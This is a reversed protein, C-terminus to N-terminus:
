FGDKAMVDDVYNPDGRFKKDLGVQDYHATRDAASIVQWEATGKTGSADVTVVLLGNNDVRVRYEHLGGAYGNFGRITDRQLQEDTFDPLTVTLPKLATAPSAAGSGHAGTKSQALRQDNYTKVLTKFSGERVHTPYARAVSQKSQYFQWGAKVNEKWSWVQDDTPAPNTIQCIGVGGLNDASFLPCGPSRFQQLGSELRMLKRFAANSPAVAALVGVSPNTGTVELKESQARLTSSGMVVTVAITLNGGRVQTFPITLKNTTTVQSIDPHKISRGLAHTCSQGTFQLTIKWQFSMPIKPDPTVNQLNATVTIKPMVCQETIAFQPGPPDYSLTVSPAPM